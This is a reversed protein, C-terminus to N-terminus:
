VGKNTEVVFETIILKRGLWRQSTEAYINNEKSTIM